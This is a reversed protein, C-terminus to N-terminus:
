CVTYFLLLLWQQSTTYLIDVTLNCRFFDLFGVMPYFSHVVNQQINM